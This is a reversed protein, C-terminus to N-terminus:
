SSTTGWAQLTDTSLPVNPALFTITTGSLTYSTDPIQAVGNKFLQLVSPTRDLTFTPNGDYGNTGTLSGSITFRRFSVDDGSGGAFMGPWYWGWGRNIYEAENRLDPCITNLIQLRQLAQWALDDARPHLQSEWPYLAAARIALNWKIADDYGDPLIVLDTIASFAGPLLSWTYLELLYGEPPQFSIYIKGRGSSSFEPNYFLSYPLAGSIDQISILSWEHSDLLKIPYRVQPDTPLICNADKIFQPRTTNFDGGPGITYIKQGPNLEYEDISTAFITHGNCNWSQLMANVENILEIYQDPNPTIGPRKTIGAARLAPNILSALTTTTPM